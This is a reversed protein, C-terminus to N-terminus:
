IYPTYEHNPKNARSRDAFLGVAGIYIYSMGDIRLDIYRRRFNARYM